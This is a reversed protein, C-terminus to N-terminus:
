SQKRGIEWPTPPGVCGFSESPVWYYIITTFDDKPGQKEPQKMKFKPFTVLNYAGCSLDLLDEFRPAKLTRKWGGNQSRSSTKICAGLHLCGILKILTENPYPILIMNGSHSQECGIFFYYHYTIIM